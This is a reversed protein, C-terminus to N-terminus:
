NSQTSTKLERANPLPAKQPPIKRMKLTFKKKLIRATLKVSSKLQLICILICTYALHHLLIYNLPYYKKYITIQNIRGTTM